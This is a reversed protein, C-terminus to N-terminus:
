IFIAALFRIFRHRHKYYKLAYSIVESWSFSLLTFSFLLLWLFTSTNNVISLCVTSHSPSSLLHYLVGEGGGGVVWKPSRYNSCGASSYINSELRENSLLEASHPCRWGAGSWKHDFFIFLEKFIPIVTTKVSLGRMLIVDSVNRPLPWKRTELWQDPHGRFRQEVRSIGRQSKYLLMYDPSSIQLCPSTPTWVALLFM